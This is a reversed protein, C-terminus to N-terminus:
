IEELTTGSESVTLRHQVGCKIAFNAMQHGVPFGFCVPIDLDKIKELVLQHFNEAMEDQADTQQKTNFSGIVLGKIKDFKRSRKLTWLMRDYAYLYEGTDELFLIKRETNIASISGALSAIMSLNGGVVPAEAVNIRDDKDFPISYEMKKRGLLATGISNIAEQQIFPLSSFNMPFSNCMKAHLTAVQYNTNIHTHFATIDSFGIIWKPIKRFHSFDIKDLIRVVGYGGRACMIANVSDDDLMQQFDAAREEDTGGM